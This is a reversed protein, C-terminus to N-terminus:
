ESNVSLPYRGSGGSIYTSIRSSTTGSRPRTPRQFAEQEPEPVDLRLTPMSRRMRPSAPSASATTSHAAEANEVFLTTLHRSKPTPNPSGRLTSYASGKLRISPM